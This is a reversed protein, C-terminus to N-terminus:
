ACRATPTLGEAEFARQVAPRALVRRYWRQLHTLDDFHINAKYVSQLWSAQGWQTLTLLYADAVTFNDGMLYEREALQEDIWKFRAELKPKASETGYKGALVAYLLPIFGKHIETSLFNLWEQLRYRDFSGNAPALALEPKRDALYQVIAPGERLRTGDALELLPVYGFPSLAYFDRGDETTHTKYDVKVLSFDAGLENLVIHPALSCAGPVYYLKM